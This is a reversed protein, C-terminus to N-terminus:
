DVRSADNTRGVPQRLEFGNGETDVFTAVRDPVRANAERLETIRGGRQEIRTQLDEIQDVELNLGAHPIPAEANGGSLIHLALEFSGFNLTTWGGSAFSPSVEFVSEYFRRARNMDHVYHIFIPKRGKM